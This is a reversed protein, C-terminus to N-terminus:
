KKNENGRVPPAKLVKQEHYIWQSNKVLDLFRRAARKANAPTDLTESSAIVQGNPSQVVFWATVGNSFAHQRVSVKIARAKLM